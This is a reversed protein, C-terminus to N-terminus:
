VGVEICRSAGLLTVLLRMFQGQEPAIQMNADALTQTEKRLQSLIEPETITVDRLYTSIAETVTITKPSM